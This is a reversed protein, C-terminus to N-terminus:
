LGDDDGHPAVPQGDASARQPVDIRLFGNQYLAKAAAANYAPPVEIVSEFHGYNIEMVVFKCHPDRCSDRRVGSIRILRGEVMLELHEKQMGALEVKIVMGHDTLYVDTCPTWSADPAPCSAHQPRRRFSVTGSITNFPM